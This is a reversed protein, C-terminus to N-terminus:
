TTSPKWSYDDVTRLMAMDQGLNNAPKWDRADERVHRLVVSLADPLCAAAAYKVSRCPGLFWWFEIWWDHASQM